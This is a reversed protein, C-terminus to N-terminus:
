KGPIVMQTAQGYVTTPLKGDWREIWMKQITLATLQQAEMRIKSAQGEAEAKAIRAEALAKQLENERQQAEQIAEIKRDLARTVNDPLRIAGIWYLKEILIGRPEFEGQLQKQVKEILRVKASSYIDESSISSADKALADRVANRLPGDVIGDIDKRYTQFLESAKSPDIRFQIGVDADAQLGETTQLAIAENEESGPDSGKTWVYNVTYTPYLYLEENIGIWYRGIGLEEADVGKNSGLLYVKVGVNGAPVKQCATGALVGILLLVALSVIRLNLNEIVKIM